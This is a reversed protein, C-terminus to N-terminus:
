PGKRADPQRGDMQVLHDMLKVRATQLSFGSLWRPTLPFQGSGLHLVQVQFAFTASEAILSAPEAPPPTVHREVAQKRITLGPRWPQRASRPRRIWPRTMSNAKHKENFEVTGLHM